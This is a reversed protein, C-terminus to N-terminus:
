KMRKLIKCIPYLLFKLTFNNKKQKSLNTFHSKNTGAFSNILAIQVNTCDNFANMWISWFGSKLALDVITEIDCKKNIFKDHYRKSLEWAQKREQWRDDKISFKSHGPRRDLGILNILNQAKSASVPDVKSKIKILGSELYEFPSFTNSLYPLIINPFDVLETGKISNCNKCAILFNDWDYTKLPHTSKDEIHEVDLASSYGERECYSCFNGLASILDPKADGYPKYTTKNLTFLNKDVPRM